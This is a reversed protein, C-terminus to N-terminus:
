IVHSIYLKSANRNTNCLLTMHTVNYQRINVILFDLCPFLRINSIESYYEARSINQEVGM